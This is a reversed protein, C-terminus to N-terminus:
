STLPLITIYENKSINQAITTREIPIDSVRGENRICLLLLFTDIIYHFHKVLNIVNHTCITM